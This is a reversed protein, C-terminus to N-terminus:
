TNFRSLREWTRRMHYLRNGHRGHRRSLHACEHALVARMEEPTAAILLPVGIILWSRSWGFFGLRPYQVVSANFDGNVVIEHIPECELEDVVECLVQHLGAAEGPAVRRGEPTPFEVLMLMGAQALGFTVLVAGIAVLWFAYEPALTVGYLFLALGGGVLLTTVLFFLMQGALLWWWTHRALADVRGHFRQEIRQVLDDFDAREM